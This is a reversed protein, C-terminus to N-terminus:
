AGKKKQRWLPITVLFKKQGAKKIRFRLDAGKKEWLIRSESDLHKGKKIRLADRLAEGRKGEAWGSSM